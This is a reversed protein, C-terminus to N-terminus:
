YSILSRKRVTQMFSRARNERKDKQRKATGQNVVQRGTTVLKRIGNREKRGNESKAVILIGRKFEEYHRTSHVAKSQLARHTRNQSIQQHTYAHTHPHLCAIAVAAMNLLMIIPCSSALTLLATEAPISLLPITYNGKNKKEYRM